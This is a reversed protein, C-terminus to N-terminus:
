KAEAVVKKASPEILKVVSSRTVEIRTNDSVKLVMRDESPDISVVTGYIGSSTLVRDDKKMAAVMQRRKRDQQQQPRLILFYFLVGLPLLPGILGFMEGMGNGSPAANQQAFLLPLGITHLLGLM